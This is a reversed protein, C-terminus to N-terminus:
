GSVEGMLTDRDVITDLGAIIERDAIGERAAFGPLTNLSLMILVACIIFVTKKM